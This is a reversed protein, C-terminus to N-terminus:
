NPTLTCFLKLVVTRAGWGSGTLRRLLAVRSKLKKRLSELHRRYMLSKDLTVGLYKSESCFPLTENNFNVKLERKAEKKNLHFVASVTKATSLKAESDPPIWKDNGHGQDAGRGSGGLRWWWAHNSSQWCICVKQLHHNALWLHLHQPSPAGPCVRTPRREQHTWQGNHDTSFWAITQSLVVLFHLSKKDILTSFLRECDPKVTKYSHKTFPNKNSEIKYHQFKNKAVTRVKEIKNWHRSESIVKKNAQAPSFIHWM